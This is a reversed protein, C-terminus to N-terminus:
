IKFRSVAAQMNNALEQLNNAASATEAAAASNEETMQAVKVGQIAIANSVSSHEARASTIDNVVELV